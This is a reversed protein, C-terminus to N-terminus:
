FGGGLMAQDVPKAHKKQPHPQPLMLLPMMAEAFENKWNRMPPGILHGGLLYPALKDWPESVSTTKIKSTAM